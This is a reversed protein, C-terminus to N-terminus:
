RTFNTTDTLRKLVDDIDKKLANLQNLTKLNEAQQKQNEIEQDTPTGLIVLQGDQNAKHKLIDKKISLTSL